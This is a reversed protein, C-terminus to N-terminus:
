IANNSFWFKAETNAYEIGLVGNNENSKGIKGYIKVVYGLHRSKDAFECQAVNSAAHYFYQRIGGGALAIYCPHATSKVFIVNEVRGM